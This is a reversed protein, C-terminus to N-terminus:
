IRKLSAIYLVIVANSIMKMRWYEDFLILNFDVFNGDLECTYLTPTPLLWGISGKKDLPMHPHVDSIYYNSLLSRRLWRFSAIIDRRGVYQLAVADIRDDKGEKKVVEREGWLMNM